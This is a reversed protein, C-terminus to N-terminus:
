HYDLVGNRRHKRICVGHIYMGDVLDHKAVNELELHLEQLAPWHKRLLVFHTLLEIDWSAASVAAQTANLALALVQLGVLARLQMWLERCRITM